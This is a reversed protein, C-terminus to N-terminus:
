VRAKRFFQKSKILGVIILGIFIVLSAFSVIYGLLVNKTNEFRVLVKHIGAPVAYTIVGRYNPDQFQIPTEKGDVYVHWGPFYFTYDVLRLSTQAHITYNRSSNKMIKQTIEGQGLIIAIKTKEIPYDKTKGTWITNMNDSYINTITFNYYQQNFLTYNKGYLQPFRLFAILIIISFCIVSQYKKINTLLASCILPILITLDMIMRWPHEISSLINIREYLPNSIKTVMIIVIVCSVLSYMIIKRENLQKYFMVFLSAGLLIIITELLGSSIFDGRVFPSDKYFYYWHYDFFNILSLYQNPVLHNKELGFYLYKIETILPITYWSSLGVGLIFATLISVIKWLKEKESLLLFIIYPTVIFMGIVLVFPHTCILLTITVTVLALSWLTGKKILFYIGILLLPLFTIAFFEPLDGRVYIDLIRYPSFTFLFAGVFAPLPKFHLRLFIYMFVSSLVSAFLFVLNSSVLVNHTFFTFLAGIYNTTQQAFLPYPMGYNAFTNAWHVPLDGQELAQSFSAINTIHVRGDFSASQGTNLFLDFVLFFGALTVILCHIVDLKNIRM